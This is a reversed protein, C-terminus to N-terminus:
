RYWIKQISNRVEEEHEKQRQIEAAKRFAEDQKVKAVREKEAKKRRPSTDRYTAKIVNVLSKYAYEKAEELTYYNTDSWNRGGRRLEFELRNKREELTEVHLYCIADKSEKDRAILVAGRWHQGKKDMFGLPHYEISYRERVKKLLKVKM